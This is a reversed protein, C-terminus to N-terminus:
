RDVLPLFLGSELTEEADSNQQEEEEITSTYPVPPDDEIVEALTIESGAIAGIASQRHSEFADFYYTGRTGNDVGAVAGLRVSGNNAGAATAAQWDLEILHSADSIAIWSSNSWTSGDNLISVQLQYAGNFFRFQIRLIAPSTGVYGQFIFHNDGSTMPISNPDFYFRARYRPEAVPLNDTVYISANDDLVAQM